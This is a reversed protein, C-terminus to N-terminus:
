YTIPIDYHHAMMLQNAVGGYGPFVRAPSYGIDNLINYINRAESCPILFKKFLVPCESIKNADEIILLDLSQKNTYQTMSLNIYDMNNGSSRYFEPRLTFLGKQASINPNGDYHPTIFKINIKSVAGELFCIQEKNLAWIVMNGSKHLAGKAAFYVAIYLDYTWDLLRTPIGYHQALATIEYLDPPIWWYSEWHNAPGRYDFDMALRSRIRDSVPVPLGQQDALRYFSRIARYEAHNQWMALEHQNSLPKKSRCINWLKEVGEERFASPILQYDEHSHGRYVFGNLNIKKGWPAVADFFERATSFRIVEIIGSNVM